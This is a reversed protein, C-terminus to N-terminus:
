FLPEPVAQLNILFSVTACTSEQSNQSIELVVKKCFVESRSSRYLKLVFFAHSIYSGGIQLLNVLVIKRFIKKWGEENRTVDNSVANFTDMKPTIRTRIKGCKSQISLSVSYRDTNLGFTPFHPGSYYVSVKWATLIKNSSILM